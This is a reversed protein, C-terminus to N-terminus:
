NQLVGSLNIYVTVDNNASKIKTMVIKRRRRMMMKLATQFCTRLHIQRFDRMFATFYKPYLFFYLFFIKNRICQFQFQGVTPSQGRRSLSMKKFDAIEDLTDKYLLVTSKKVYRLWKVNKWYFIEGEDNKKLHLAKKYLESYELFHTETMPVNQFSSNKWMFSCAADM